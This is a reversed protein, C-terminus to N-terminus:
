ILVFFMDWDLTTESSRLENESCSKCSLLVATTKASSPSKYGTSFWKGDFTFSIFTVM